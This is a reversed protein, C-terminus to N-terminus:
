TVTKFSTLASCMGNLDTQMASLEKMQAITKTKNVSLSTKQTSLTSKQATLTRIEGNLAQETETLQTHSAQLEQVKNGVNVMKKRLQTNAATLEGKTGELERKTDGMRTKQANLEDRSTELKTVNTRLKSLEGALEVCEENITVEEGLVKEARARQIMALVDIKCNKVRGFSQRLGSFAFSEGIVAQTNNGFYEWEVTGLVMENYLGARVEMAGNTNFKWGLMDDAKSVDDSASPPDNPQGCRVWSNQTPSQMLIRESGEQNEIHILNGGSTTLLCKTNNDNTVLSPHAPNPVAAQIVPRDPDGDMFVLLVECGKHLPYHLGHDQGGYPEILRLWSSAKGDRRGSLDFPLIVKYRGREDVEAYQGSQSADITASLVGYCKPKVTKRRPRYQINAPIATFTNRYYPTDPAGALNIGLSHSLYAEQGGEHRVWTTLYSTNVADRFHGQLQFLYGSRVQPSSSAGDHTTERCALEEARVKALAKAEEETRVGEGFLHREGQGQGSVSTEGRPRTSPKRFDYDSVSVSQPTQRRTRSFRQIAGAGKPQELGSPPRYALTEAGQMPAHSTRIDTIIMKEGSASQEFFYYLGDRELWRSIFDFHSERYQCVYERVPYIRSLRFEFDQGPTLGGDTLAATLFGQIDQDLFIQNHRTLTLWWLKPALVVRYFVHDQFADQMEFLAPIGHFPLEGQDLKLTFVATSQVLTTPDLDKNGTVLLIDFAYPRSLGEEGSFRVVQFTDDSAAQSRFTYTNQYAQSM